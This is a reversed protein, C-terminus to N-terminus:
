TDTIIGIGGPKNPKVGLREDLVTLMERRGSHARRDACIASRQKTEEATSVSPVIILTRAVSLEIWQGLLNVIGFSDELQIDEIM